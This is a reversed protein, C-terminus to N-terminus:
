CNKECDKNQCVLLPEPTMGMTSGSLDTLKCGCNSCKPNFFNEILKIIKKM